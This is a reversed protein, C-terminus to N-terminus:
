LDSNIFRPLPKMGVAKIVTSAEPSPRTVTHITLEKLKNKNLQINSLLDIAKRSGMEMKSAKLRWALAKELLYSLVCIYVHSKVREENYLYIPRIKLFTKMTRFAREVEQLTFYADVIESPTITSTNTSLFYKGENSEERRIVEINEHYEFKGDEPVTYSFYKESKSDVLVKVAKETIKQRQKVFGKAVQNAIGLLGERGKKVRAERIERQEFAKTRSYCCITRNGKNDTGGFVVKLKHPADEYEELRRLLLEEMGPLKKRKVAMVYEYGKDSLALLNTESVLGSDAVFICRRIKFRNSLDEVMSVLTSVDATNGPLVESAIPVGDRDCALAIVIQKRDSRKDRSYGYEAIDCKDGEFYSTTLDYFVMDVERNFLDRSAQFLEEELSEKIKHLYDLSRYFHHLSLERGELEPLYIRKYWESVSLKSRPEILRNIVMVKIYLSVDFDMNYGSLLRNIRQTLGFENWLHDALMPQGFDKNSETTLDFESYMQKGAVRTFDTALDMLTKDGLTDLNGFSYLVINKPRGNERVSECLQLYRYKDKGRKITAVRLFM